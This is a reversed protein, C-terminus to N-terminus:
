ASRLFCPLFLICMIHNWKCIIYFICVFKYHCLASSYNSPSLPFLFPFSPLFPNCYPELVSKSTISINIKKVSHNITEHAQFKRALSQQGWPLCLHSPVQSKISSESVMYRTRQKISSEDGCCGGRQGGAQERCDALALGHGSYFSLLQKFTNNEGM